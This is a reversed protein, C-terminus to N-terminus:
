IFEVDSSDDEKRTVQIIEPVMDKIQERHSILFIQKFGLKKTLIKTISSIIQNVFFPDLPGDVEDLFLMDLKCKNQRKKLLTLAIRVAYSIICNHSVTFDGLMILNDKGSVEFGYYEGVGIEEVTFGTMLHDKNQQRSTAKKKTVKTPIKDVNGSINIRHYYLNRDSQVVKKIRTTVLFGLSRALFIIGEALENYKTCIEFFNHHLYGDSDLLGALLELRYKEDTILFSKHIYKKKQQSIGNEILCMDRLIKIETVGGTDKRNHNSVFLEKCGKGDQLRYEHGMEECHKTVWKMIEPEKESITIGNHTSHGDGLWLGTLYPDIVPKGYFDIGSRYLKMSSKFTESQLLYDKVSYNGSLHKYNASNTKLPLMHNINCTFPEGKIPVIKYMPAIGSTLKEVRRPSSDPGMILDGVAIYKSKKRNGDYMLIEVEPGFCKGGGSDNAFNAERGNEIIKLSIEERKQKRRLSGCECESNRYGKPFAFGCHCVPEWTGIEKDPSFIVSLGSDMEKLIYNIDDEIEQFANEIEDAPIGNKGFMLCIYNLDELEKRLVENRESVENIKELAKESEKIRHEIEGVKKDYRKIDLNLTEIAAELLDIKEDYDKSLNNHQNGVLQELEENLGETKISVLLKLQDQYSIIKAENKEILCFEEKDKEISELEEDYTAILSTIAKLRTESKALDKPSFKIRDCTENLVPCIGNGSKKAKELQERIGKRENVLEAKQKVINSDSPCGQKYKRRLETNEGELLLKNALLKKRKEVISGSDALISKIEIIRNTANKFASKKREKKAILEKLQEQQTDRAETTVKIDRKTSKLIVELGEDVELSAELAKKEAENDRLKEKTVDRDIKSLREKNKWHDNALWRMLFESKGTHSSEMFGHIDAQKFYNTLELDKASTGFLKDIERQAETTKELWNIELLGNNKIDRGRKIKYKTGDDDEYVCYVHMVQEGYHILDIEKDSRSSGTLNYLISEILSTKGSRNSRHKANEYRALVGLVEGRDKFQLRHTGKFIGYNHLELARLIM